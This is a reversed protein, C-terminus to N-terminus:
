FGVHSTSSPGDSDDIGGEHAFEYDDDTLYVTGDEVGVDVEPLTSGAADGNDCHGSCADFTSGHRPCVIEGDRMAVGRGTDFRQPEHTCRNVWAAVGDRNGDDTGDERECPVVVVEEEIDFSDVVTFLFSGKDRVREVTTLEARDTM